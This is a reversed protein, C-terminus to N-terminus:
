DQEEDLKREYKRKIYKASNEIYPYVTSENINMKDLDDLIREKDDQSIIIREIMIEPTGFDPMIMETGFLLFSGSQSVIRGNSKKGKVCLINKLDNPIIKHLFYAKDEKIFHLLRGVEPLSNFAQIKSISESKNKDERYLEFEQESLLYEERQVNNGITEKDNVSLRSINSLCSVTDSDFYKISKQNIFFVIVEGDNENRNSSCAFYLAMLPNSTIDLLRTPLSYHQMRILKELTTKDEHFDNPNEVLLETAMVNEHKRYLYRGNENTRNISPELKYKVDSHGRYFIDYGKRKPKSLVHEMFIHLSTARFSIVEESAKDETPIRVDDIEVINQLAINESKIISYLDLDKIAWHTRMIEYKSLGLSPLIINNIEGSYIRNTFTYEFEVKYRDATISKLTGMFADGQLNEILFLCPLTKIEEIQEKTLEKYKRIIKDETHELFRSRTFEYSGNTESWAQTDATVFLNYM